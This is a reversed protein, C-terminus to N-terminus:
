TCRPQEHEQATVAHEPTLDIDISVLVNHPDHRRPPGDYPECLRGYRRCDDRDMPDCPGCWRDDPFLSLQDIEM